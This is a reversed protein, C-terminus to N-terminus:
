TRQQARIVYRMPADEIYDFPYYTILTLLNQETQTLWSIEEPSVIQIDNVKVIPM